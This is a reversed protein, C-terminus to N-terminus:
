PRFFLPFALGAELIPAPAAYLRPDGAALGPALQAGMGLRAQILVWSRDRPLGLQVRAAGGLWAGVPSRIVGNNYLVEFFRPGGGAELDIRFGGLEFGYGGFLDLGLQRLRYSWAVFSAGGEGGSVGLSLGLAGRSLQLEGGGVHTAGLVTGAVWTARYLGGVGLVTESAGETFSLDTLGGKSRIPVETFGAGHIVPGGVGTRVLVKSGKALSLRQTPVEPGAGGLRSLVVDGEYTRVELPQGAPKVINEVLAAQEYQVLFTGEIAADFLLAATRETPFSLYIPSRSKLRRVLKEPNQSRGNKAAFTATRQRAYEWLNELSVGIGDQPAHTFGELLFHTFLGGLAQDEYSFEGAQSSVFWMTGESELVEKPLEAIPNFGPTPTAGKARLAEWDIAGSYCADVFALTLQAAMRAFIEALDAGDLPVDSTLLKGSVGHGTFFLAFLTPLPGLEAQDKQHQQALRNAADLIAKRGGGVVLAVRDPQFNGLRVLQAALAAADREAHQLPELETKDSVGRNSGIVLAYRVNSGALAVIPVLALWIALLRIM